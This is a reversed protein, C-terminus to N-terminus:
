KAKKKRFGFILKSQSVARKRSEYFVRLILDSNKSFVRCSQFFFFRSKVFFTERSVNFFNRDAVVIRM